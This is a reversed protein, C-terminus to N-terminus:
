NGSDQAPSEVRVLIIAQGDSLYADDVPNLKNFKMIGRLTTIYADGRESYSGLTAALEYGSVRSGAARLAARKARFNRYARHTNLNLAHARVSELPSDFAAIRYDGNQERQQEPRIGNSDWTWQGFLANGTFAFRSTGWGSEEAAQALVLSPPIIDVRELLDATLQKHDVPKQLEWRYRTALDELWRQDEESLGSAVAAIQELRSREKLILENSRLALPGIARFFLRKKLKVDIEQATVKSWHDSVERLYIRPVERIGVQWAETTYDLEEFLDLVEQYHQMEFVRANPEGGTVAAYETAEIGNDPACASLALLLGTRILHDPLQAGSM